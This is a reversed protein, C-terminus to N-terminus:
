RSLILNGLATIGQGALFELARSDVVRLRCSSRDTSERPFRWVHFAVLGVLLRGRMGGSLMTEMSSVQSASLSASRKKVESAKELSISSVEPPVSYPGPFSSSSTRYYRHHRRSPVPLFGHVTQDELFRSLALNTDDLLSRLLPSTPLHFARSTESMLGYISALSTKCQASPVVAPEEMSHFNRILALISRFSDDRDIDLSDLASSRDDDAEGPPPSSLHGGFSSRYREAVASSRPRWGSPGPRPSRDGVLAPRPDGLTGGPM